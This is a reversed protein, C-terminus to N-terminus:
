EASCSIPIKRRGRRPERARHAQWDFCGERARSHQHCAGPILPAAQVGAEGPPAKLTSSEVADPAAFVDDESLSALFREPFLKLLRDSALADIVLHVRTIRTPNAVSHTKSFDAYWLTGPELAYRDGDVVFEVRADTIIPVHMRAMGASLDMMSDCHPRIREGPELTLLRASVIQCPLEDLM